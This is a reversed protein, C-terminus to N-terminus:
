MGILIIAVFLALLAYKYVSAANKARQWVTDGVADPGFFLNVAAFFPVFGGLIHILTLMM